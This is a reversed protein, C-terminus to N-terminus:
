LFFFFASELSVADNPESSDSYNRYIHIYEYKSEHINYRQQNNAHSSELMTPMETSIGYLPVLMLCMITIDLTCYIYKHQTDGLELQQKQPSERETVQTALKYCLLYHVCITVM